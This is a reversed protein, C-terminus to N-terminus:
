KVAGHSSKIMGTDDIDFIQDQAPTPATALIEAAQHEQADVSAAESGLIMDIKVARIGIWVSQKTQDGANYNADTGGFGTGYVEFMDPIESYEDDTVSLLEAGTIWYIATGAKLTVNYDRKLGSVVAAAGPFGNAGADTQGPTISVNEIVYAKVEDLHETDTAPSLFPYNTSKKYKSDILADFTPTKNAPLSVYIKADSRMYQIPYIHDADCVGQGNPLCVAGPIKALDTPFIGNNSSIFSKTDLNPAQDIPPMPSRQPLQCGSVVAAAVVFYARFQV